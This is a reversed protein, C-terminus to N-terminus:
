VNCEVIRRGAGRMLDTYTYRGSGGYHCACRIGRRVRLTQMGAEAIVWYQKAIERVVIALGTHELVWHANRSCIYVSDAGLREGLVDEKLIGKARRQSSHRMEQACWGSRM